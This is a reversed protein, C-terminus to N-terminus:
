KNLIEIAKQKIWEWTDALAKMITDWNMIALVILAITAVIAIIIAILPLLAINLATSVATLVTVVATWISMATSVISIATAVIGIAIAISLLIEAVIPNEVLWKFIDTLGSLIDM